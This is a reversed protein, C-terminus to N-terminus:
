PIILIRRGIISCRRTINQFGGGPIGVPLDWYILEGNIKELTAEGFSGTIFNFGSEQFSIRPLM